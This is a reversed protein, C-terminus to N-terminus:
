VGASAGNADPTDIIHIDRQPFPISIGAADFRKKVTETLDWYVTWYDSTKSWPRCVFNVSSDALENVRITPAPENLVLPHNKVIEDLLKAAKDIDDDYGIGFVLDVRRTKKGTMNKIVDGWVENNPVIVAQNDFTTLATTLLTMSEVKGSVGAVEVADGIDFPRYLLILMGSAFNSLTGQLALGVVLGAAGLVTLLPAIPVELFSLAIVIGVFLIARSVFKVLFNRLLDSAKHIRSVARKVLRGAVSSLVWAVFITVFFLIVNKALRLGGNEAVAWKKVYVWAANVDTVDIQAQSVASIYRDYAEREGGKAAYSNLVMNLRDILATRQDALESVEELIKTRETESEAKAAAVKKSSIEKAKEQLLELWANAEAEVEEKTLPRVRIELTELKIAPEATQASYDVTAEGQAYATVNTCLVAALIVIFPSKHLSRSNM